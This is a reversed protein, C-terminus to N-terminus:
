HKTSHAQKKSQCKILRELVYTIVFSAIFILTPLWCVCLIFFLIYVIWDDKFGTKYQRDVSRSVRIAFFMIILATLSMMLINTEVSFHNM